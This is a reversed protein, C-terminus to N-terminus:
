LGLLTYTLDVSISQITQNEEKELQFRYDVSLDKKLPVGRAIEIATDSSVPVFTQVGTVGQPLHAIRLMIEATPIIGAGAYCLELSSVSATIRWKINSLVHLDVVKPLEITEQGLDMENASVLISSHVQNEENNAVQVVFSPYTTSITLEQVIPFYVTFTVTNSAGLSLISFCTLILSVLAGILRVKSM